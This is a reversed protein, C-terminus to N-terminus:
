SVSAQLTRIDKLANPHRSKENRIDIDAQLNVFFKESTGFFKALRLGTEVTIRRQNHLIELIRSSPVHIEKALQYASINLPELFEERLIEGIQPTDIMKDMDSRDGKLKELRNAPPTKLDQESDAAEILMLKVLARKQIENPLKRSYKQNYILETERDGFTKIM